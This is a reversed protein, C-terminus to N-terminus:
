QDGGLSRLYALLQHRQEDRRMGGYAMKTGPAFGRPNLLFEDLAELTWTQDSMGELVDSYNYDEHHAIPQGVIDWLNPGVRHAGGEDFTHCAQCARAAAQGDAIDMGAVIGELGQGEGETAPEAAEQQTTEEAAPEQAPEVAAPEEQTAQEDAPQTDTEAEQDEEDAAQGDPLPQPSDSLSHLYALLEVRQEDRRMGGYAMKTGPAFGRPNLLFEDLAELTWTQDSMGELADSYNYDEHHAIPQGVIDWLNPGVRHAGGEDFTHCAQCARAAAQGQEPDAAAVLQAMGAVEGEGADDEVATEEEGAPAAVAAEEAAPEPLPEPDDSLSRLYVLLDARQEDRQMGGYAMKTGPAFGRPNRIFDDLAEFTWTDDSMAQLADSYAYDDHHAIPLGVIDWLNPGVRHPEGQGFTHCAQCARAAAEGASPDAAALLAAIDPGDVETEDVAPTVEAVQVIMGPQEPAEAHYVVGALANLGFVFLGTGLVWGAVTNLTYSDIKRM